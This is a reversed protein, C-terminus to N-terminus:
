ANYNASNIVASVKSGDMYVDGSERTVMILQELLEEVRSKGGGASKQTIGGKKAILNDDEHTEIMQGDKTLIMDNVQKIPSNPTIGGLGYSFGGTGDPGIPIQPNLTPGSNKLIKDITLQEEAAKLTAAKNKALTEANANLSLAKTTQNMGWSVLKYVDYALLAWGLGPVMRGLVKPMFKLAGYGFKQLGKNVLYQTGATAEMAGVTNRVYNNDMVAELANEPPTDYAGDSLLGKVSEQGSLVKYGSYLAKGTGGFKIPIRGTSDIMKPITKLGIKKKAASTTESLLARMEINEMEDASLKMKKFTGTEPSYAFKGQDILKNMSNDSRSNGTFSYRNGGKELKTMVHGLLDYHGTPYSMGDAGELMGGKHFRKGGGAENIASLIDGFMATSKKNIVAEGGELEGFRTPIGGGAHSPGYLVGGGALIGGLAKNTVEQTKVVKTGDAGEGIADEIKRENYVKEKITNEIIQNANAMETVETTITKELSGLVDEIIDSTKQQSTYYVSEKNAAVKLAAEIKGADVTLGTQGKILDQVIEIYEDKKDADLADTQDGYSATFLNYDSIAGRESVIARIDDKTIGSISDATLQKMDIDAQREHFGAQAKLKDINNQTESAFDHLKTTASNTALNLLDQATAGNSVATNWQKETVYGADIMKQKFTGLGEKTLDNTGGSLELFSQNIIGHHKQEAILLKNREVQDMKNAHEQNRILNKRATDLDDDFVGTKETLYGGIYGIAAGVGTGIGPLIATGIAAGLGAGAMRANAGKRQTDTAARDMTAVDYISKALIAGGVLGGGLAAGASTSLGGMGTVKAGGFLKAGATQMLGAGSYQGGAMARGGGPMFQGGKYFKGTKFLDGVKGFMNKMMGGPGMSVYMPTLPSSGLLLKAGLLAAIGKGITQGVGEAKGYSGSFDKSAFNKLFGGIAGGSLKDIFSAVGMVADKIGIIIGKITFLLNKFGTKFAPSELFKFFSKELDKLGVGFVDLFLDGIVKAIREMVGLGVDLKNLMPLAKEALDFQKQVLDQKMQAHRAERERQATSKQLQGVTLGVAEALARQQHPAMKNFKDLGGVQRMVEEMAGAEDGQMALMRAKQLNLDIGTILQAEMEKEISTEFDLLSASVKAMDDLTLGLRRATVASKALEDASGSFSALTDGSASAIDQFIVQPNLGAQESMQYTLNTMNVAADDTLGGVISFNDLVKASEEDSLGISLKLEAMTKVLDGSIYDIRGFSDELAVIADVSGELSSSFGEGMDYFRKKILEAKALIKDQFPGAGALKKNVRDLEEALENGRQRMTEFRQLGVALLGTFLTLPNTVIDKLTTFIQSAAGGQNEMLDTISGQIKEIRQNMQEQKSLAQYQKDMTQLDKIRAKQQDTLDKIATTNLIKLESQISLIKDEFPVTKKRFDLLEKTKKTVEAAEQNYTEYDSITNKIINADELSLKKLAEKQLAVIKVQNAMFGMNDLLKKEIGYMQDAERRQTQQLSFINEMETSIDVLQERKKGYFDLEAKMDASSPGTYEADSAALPSVVRRGQNARKKAM